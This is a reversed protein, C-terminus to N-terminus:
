HHIIKSKAINYVQKAAYKEEGNLAIFYFFLFFLIISAGTTICLRYFSVTMLSHVLYTCVFSLVLVAMTRLVVDVMYRKSEMGCYKACYAIKFASILTATLIGVEVIAYPPFNWVYLLVLLAISGYQVLSTFLNVKKIKGVANIVTSLPLTIQELLVKVVTLECLILTYPPVNKLWLKLIYPCDIVFPIAFLSYLLVSLKCASFTTKYMRRRDGAGESKTIVPAVAKLMNNSFALLQGNIQGRVGNAANLVTGFFKNLALNSGYGNVVSASSGLLNWGAFSFLEKMTKGDLSKMISLHCEAYHRHCYVRMIVLVIISVLTMLVGYVILKDYNTWTIIFAVLLNLLSQILGVISYYLMNEHSNMVADYPATMVTFMTSAIMCYYVCAAAFLRDEDINIIYNFFLPKLLVLLVTVFLAILLHIFITNNFIINKKKEDGEGETYNMYRQTASAMSANLFALMAIAGGVVNFVGFDSAGLSNLILRTTYLSIFVNIAMKIYLYGTNKVIRSSTSM